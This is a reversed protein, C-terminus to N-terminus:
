KSGALQGYQSSDLQVTLIVGELLATTCQIPDQACSVQGSRSHM